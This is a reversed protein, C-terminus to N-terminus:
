DLSIDIQYSTVKITDGSTIMRVEEVATGRDYVVSLRYNYDVVHKRGSSVTVKTKVIELDVQEIRGMIEGASRVIKVGDEPTIDVGFAEGIKSTDGSMITGYFRSVSEKANEIDGVDNTRTLSADCGCFGILLVFVLCFRIVELIYRM